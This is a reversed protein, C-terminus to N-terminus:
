RRAGRDPLEQGGASIRQDRERVSFVFYDSFATDFVRNPSLGATAATDVPAPSATSDRRVRRRRARTPNRIPLPAPPSQSQAILAPLVPHRGCRM